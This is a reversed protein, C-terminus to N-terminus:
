TKWEYSNGLNNLIKNASLVFNIDKINIASKELYDNNCINNVNRILYNLSEEELDIKEIKIGCLNYKDKIVLLIDKDETIKINNIVNINPYDLFEELKSIEILIDDYNMEKFKNMIINVIFAYLNTTLHLVEYITSNENIRTSVINNVENVELERYVKKLELILNNVNLNFVELKNQNRNFIRYFLHQQRRQNREIKRNILFIKSELKSIQKRNVNYLNKYKKEDKYVTIAEDYIYKFKLYNSYEYLSDNLKQINENYEELKDKNLEEINEGILKKYLSNIYEKTYNKQDEEGNTFKNLILSTDNNKLDILKRKLIKYKETIGESTLNELKIIREKEEEYYLDIKSENKLYISRFNLEIHTIIDSCKWYIQEFVEKVRNSNYDGKKIEELLVKMYENAYISYNFDTEQLEIGVENFEKICQAISENVVELNNKYFRRLVYLLRDLEMKQFSTINDNLIKISPMQKIEKETKEINPDISISKFKNFRRKIEAIIDNLYEVYEQKKIEVKEVYIGLNKKNNKPLTSLIEKDLEIQNILKDIVESM